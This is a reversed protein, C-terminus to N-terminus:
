GGVSVKIMACGRHLPVAIVLAGDRREVSVPQSAPGCPYGASVKVEGKLTPLSLRLTCSKAEGGFVVPALYGGPVSFLNAKGVDVSVCGPELVWQRGRLEDLLPGYDLYWKANFASPGICHNNHPYPATPYVGLYLCRQFYADPDPRLTNDDPTWAVVPKHVGMLATGNLAGGMQGFEDYFGDVNAMLDVRRYLPNVFIVKDAGHMVPGILDLTAKWSQGLFRAPKGALWSVGDDADLNYFRLWDLRDICIGAAHPLRAVHRRAQEVLHAQYGSEGPDMVFANYCTLVPKGGYKLLAAVHHTYLYDNPDRWLDADAAAKRPPAPWKMERGFETTNFYSLVACGAESLRQAYADMAAASCLNSKGPVPADDPSRTWTDTVSPLPPLFMGMYPFEISAKWNVRFGMAKFRELDVPGDDASYAGCGAIQAARPNPPDFYRAYRRTMWGLGGRWDAGHPVLDAAFHVETGAALRNHLRTFTVAGDASTTLTLALLTDEPSLVLSVARGAAPLVITALPVSIHRDVPGADFQAGGPTFPQGGYTFSRTTFPRALLPDVWGGNDREANAWATWFRVADAQLFRLSTRIATAWPEGAGTITLEWRVSDATPTFSEVVTASDGDRNVVRSAFAMGGGPLEAATTTGVARCGGLRTRGIVAPKWDGAELGVVAGDRDLHVTLGPSAVHYAAPGVTEAAPKGILLAEAWDAHDANIGDGADGVVLALSRRGTLPVDVRRAPTHQDMIGSDFLKVDDAFVQFVVTAGTPQGMMEADIGVWATFREYDGDLDYEIRSVAHTGLGHAFRRTGITLPNGECSTDIGLSGWGQTASTPALGSLRIEDAHAATGLALCVLLLLRTM